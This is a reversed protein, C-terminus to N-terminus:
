CIILKIPVVGVLVASVDVVGHPEIGEGQVLEDSLIFRVNLVYVPIKTSIRNLKQAKM